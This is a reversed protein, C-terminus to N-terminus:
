VGKRPTPAVDPVPLVAHETVTLTRLDVRRLRRRAPLGATDPAGTAWRSLDDALLAALLAAAPVPLRVPTGATRPGSWYAALERHAPTAALRRSRVHASTVDGPAAAVPEVYAQWGERHCRLWAVGHEPLRDAADWLGDPAPGDLCWVVASPNGDLLDEVGAPSSGSATVAPATRPRAGLAALHVALPETLVPDGLISVNRRAAPWEPASPGEALYGAEEFARVVRELGEDLPAATGGALLSLLADEDVDGARVSFFEGAPTRVALGRGPVAVVEAGPVLRSRSM